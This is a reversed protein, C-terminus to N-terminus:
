IFDVLLRSSLVAGELGINVGRTANKAASSMFFFSVHGHWDNFDSIFIVDRRTFFFVDLDLSTMPTIRTQPSMMEETARTFYFCVINRIARRDRRFENKLM